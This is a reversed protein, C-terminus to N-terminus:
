GFLGAYDAGVTLTVVKPAAGPTLKPGTAAKLRTVFARAHAELGPPYTVNTHAAKQRADGIATVDYGVTRLETAIAAAKGPTGTGDIILVKIFRAAIRAGAKFQEETIEQDKILATFLHRAQPYQWSVNAKDAAFDIERPYNPVTLFALHGKPIDLLKSTLGYLARVSALAKDATISKTASDIFRYLDDPSSLKTQAKLALAHAFEQQREIRGLDSGASSRTRVYGLAQEGKITQCGAELDLQAKKDRIAQRPCIKIGGISNVMDKFGRFDISIFHDIQLGINHEVTKITCAAAGGAGVGIAYASNLKFYHPASAVGNGRDCAPIQVWSDRPLSVVAAWKRNAAIHLIMVTDSRMTTVGKGYEANAGERSDSGVLLINEAAPSVNVPRGGGLKDNIETLSINSNLHQYLWGGTALLLLPPIGAWLAIRCRRTAKRNKRQKEDQRAGTKDHPTRYTTHM